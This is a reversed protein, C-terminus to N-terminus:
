GDKSENGKGLCVFGTERHILEREELSLIAKDFADKKMGFRKKLTELLEGATTNQEEISNLVELIRGQNKGLGGEEGAPAIYDLRELVASTEIEGIENLLYRGDDALLNIKRSKFALPPLLESEKSKTNTFVITGDLNKEIRYESDVAAHILSAGRARTKEKHGTHHIIVVSLGPFKARILDLKSLGEAAAQTDSDDGTLARSWTDIVALVPPETEADIAEELANILIDAADLLNVAGTYRYLPADTISVCNEQSWARFRRIIGASGEAAIYFVAGKKVPHGYFDRGTAICSSLAIAVFSKFTGSDGFIMCLTGSEIIGKVIWVLSKIVANGIREFHPRKRELEILPQLLKGLEGAMIDFGHNKACKKLPSLPLSKLEAEPLGLLYDTLAEATNLSKIAETLEQRTV